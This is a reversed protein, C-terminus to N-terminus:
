VFMHFHCVLRSLLVVHHWLNTKSVFSEPLILDCLVSKKVRHFAGILTLMCPFDPVSGHQTWYPQIAGVQSIIM